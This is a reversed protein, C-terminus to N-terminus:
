VGYSISAHGSASPTVSIASFARGARTGREIWGTVLRDYAFPLERVLTELGAELFHRGQIGRTPFFLRKSTPYFQHISPPISLAGGDASEGSRLVNGSSDRWLGAPMRFGPRPGETLGINFLQEGFLSVPFTPSPGNTVATGQAGFNLRKWHKAERDLLGENIFNIGRTTGVAMEPNSLAPKLKGPLRNQGARYSDVVKRGEVETVYADMVSQRMLGAVQGHIRRVDNRNGALAAIAAGIAAVGNGAGLVGAAAAGRLLTFLDLEVGRLYSRMLYPGVGPGYGPFAGRFDYTAM